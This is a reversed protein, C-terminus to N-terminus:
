HSEQLVQEVTRGAALVESDAMPAGMIMFGVPPASPPTAPVSIACTDLFNGVSTNRLTLLNNKSYHAPDDDDFSAVPPPLIPVTPLVFGTLGDIREAAISIVRKRSNLVEVYDAASLNAGLEMRSRVRQDYEDGRTKLLEKHWAFAEAAALGGGRNIEPLENLEPFPVDVLSVGAASLASLAAEYASAVEPDLDDMVLDSLVGFRLRDAPPRHDGIVGSGGSFVDDVIACCDATRGLPGISDLSFSLPVVGDLPVRSATPKYGAIGCFAAPIRCSGGTDTGLGAVALGDAVAVATGSSSGGPIRGVDRDWPSRPTDFHSNLGLGSYAFETMNTRGILIFGAARLRAVVPADAAAPARDGLVTSGAGTVQGQIDALDKIAVPIGSFPPLSGGSSRIGDYGDATARATEAAVHLFARKGEGDPAEIKALCQEVLERATVSGDALASALQRISASSNAM